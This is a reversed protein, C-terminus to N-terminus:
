HRLRLADDAFCEALDKRQPGPADEDGRERRVHVAHLLRDVDADIQPAADRDDPARHALVRVDGPVEAEHLNRVAGDELGLAQASTSCWSIAGRCTEPCPLASSNRVIMESSRGFATIGTCPSNRISAACACSARSAPTGADSITIASFPVTISSVSVPERTTS